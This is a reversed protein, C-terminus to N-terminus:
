GPPQGDIRLDRTRAWTPSGFIALALLDKNRALATRTSARRLGYAGNSAMRARCCLRQTSSCAVARNRRDPISGRLTVPVNPGEAAERASATSPLLAAAASPPM